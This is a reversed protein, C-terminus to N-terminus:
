PFFCSIPVYCNHYISLFSQMFFQQNKEGIKNYNGSNESKIPLEGKKKGNRGFYECYDPCWTQYVM